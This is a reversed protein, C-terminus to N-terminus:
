EQYMEVAQWVAGGVLGALGAGLIMLVERWPFLPVQPPAPVAVLEELEEELEEEPEQEQQQQQNLPCCRQRFQQFRQRWPLQGALISRRLTRDLAQASGPLYEAAAEYIVVGDPQQVRVTPLGNINPAYRERYIATGAKIKHYRVQRALESNEFWATLQQFQVDSKEGVISIHLRTDEPEASQCAGCMIVGLALAALIMVGCRRRM